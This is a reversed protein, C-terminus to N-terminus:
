DVLTRELGEVAERKVAEVGEHDGWLALVACLFLSLV